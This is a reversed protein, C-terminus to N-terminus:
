GKLALRPKYQIGFESLEIAWWAMRRSLDPKHITRQLPLNTLAVIPHAQFYPRFKKAPVRLALAEQELHTYRTESESLSKGVFLIPRQKRNNDEKFLTVSVSAESVALYLHIAQGPASWFQRNPLINNSRQSPNTVNRM